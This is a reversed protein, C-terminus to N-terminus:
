ISILAVGDPPTILPPRLAVFFFLDISWVTLLEVPGGFIAYSGVILSFIHKLAIVNMFTLDIESIPKNKGLYLSM